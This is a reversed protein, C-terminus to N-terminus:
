KKIAEYRYNGYDLVQWDPTWCDGFFICQPTGEETQPFDWEDATVPQASTQNKRAIAQNIFYSAVMVALYYFVQWYAMAVPKGDIYVATPFFLERLIHLIDM